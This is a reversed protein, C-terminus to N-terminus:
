ALERGKLKNVVLTKLGSLAAGIPIAWAPPLSLAATAALAVAVQALTWLARSILDKQEPTLHDVLSMSSSRRM